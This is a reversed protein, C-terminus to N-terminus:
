KTEQNTRPIGRAELTACARSISLELEEAPETLDDARLQGNNDHEIWVARFFPWVVLKTTESQVATAMEKALRMAAGCDTSFAHVDPTWILDREWVLGPHGPNRKQEYGLWRM